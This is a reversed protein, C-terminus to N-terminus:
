RQVFYGPCTPFTPESGYANGGGMTSAKILKALVM